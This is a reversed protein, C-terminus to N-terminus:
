DDDLEDLAPAASTALAIADSRLTALSSLLRNRSLTGAEFLERVAALTGADIDDGGQFFDLFESIVQSGSKIDESTM